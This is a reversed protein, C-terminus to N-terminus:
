DDSQERLRPRRLARARCAAGLRTVRVRDAVMQLLIVHQLVVHRLHHRSLGRRVTHRTPTVVVSARTHRSRQARRSQARPVCEDTQTRALARWGRPPAGRARVLERSAGCRAGARGSATRRPGAGRQAAAPMPRPHGRRAGSRPRRALRPARRALRRFPTTGARERPPSHSKGRARTARGARFRVACPAGSPSWSPRWRGPRPASGRGHDVWRQGDWPEAQRRVARGRAAPKARSGRAAWRSRRDSRGREPRKTPAYRSCEGM